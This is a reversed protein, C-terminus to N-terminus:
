GRRDFVLLRRSFSSFLLVLCREREGKLLVCESGIKLAGAGFAAVAEKPASSLATILGTEDGSVAKTQMTSAAKEKTPLGSLRRRQPLAAPAAAAAIRARSPATSAGSCAAPAVGRRSSLVSVSSRM